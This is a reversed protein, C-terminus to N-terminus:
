KKYLYQGKIEKLYRKERNALIYRVNSDMRVVYQKKSSKLIIYKQNSKINNRVLGGSLEYPYQKYIYTRHFENYNQIGVMLLDVLYQVMTQNKYTHLYEKISAKMADDISNINPAKCKSGPRFCGLVGGGEFVALDKVILTACATCDNKHMLYRYLSIQDPVKLVDKGFGNAILKQFNIISIPNRLFLETKKTMNTEQIDQDHLYKQTIPHPFYSRLTAININNIDEDIFCSGFDILQVQNRHWMVNDRRIDKHFIGKSNLFYIKDILQRQAELRDPAHSINSEYFECPFIYFKSTHHPTQKNNTINVEVMYKDTDVLRYPTYGVFNEMGLREYLKPIISKEDNSKTLHDPIVKFCNETMLIDHLKNNDIKTTTTTYVSALSIDIANNVIDQVINSFSEQRSSLLFAYSGTAGKLANALAKPLNDYNNM